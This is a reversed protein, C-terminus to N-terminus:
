WRVRQALLILGGGGLMLLWTPPEPVSTPSYELLIDGSHIGQDVVTTFRGADFTDDLIKGFNTSRPNTAGGSLGIIDWTYPMRWFPDLLNPSTASDTFLISLVSAQGLELNGGTLSIVSFDTGPNQDSKRGLEWVYTWGSAINLGGRLELLGPSHGPMGPRIGRFRDSGGDEVSIHGDIRGNGALTGGAAVEVEGSGTGSGNRGNNVVLTGAGVTTGGSYTNNGTLVMTGRGQLNLIIPGSITGAFTSTKGAPITLTPIANNIGSSRMSTQATGDLGAINPNFGNLDLIATGQVKVPGSSLAENSGLALTGAEITTAGEFSNTGSLIL